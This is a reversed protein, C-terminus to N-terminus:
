HRDFFAGADQVGLEFYRKQATADKLSITMSELNKPRLVHLPKRYYTRDGVTISNEGLKELLDNLLQAQSFVRRNPLSLQLDSVLLHMDISNFPLTLISAGYLKDLEAHYDYDTFDCAIIEDVNPDQFLSALPTNDLYGGEIYYDGDIQIAKFYPLTTIGAIFADMFPDLSADDISKLIENVNFYRPERRTLNTALMDWRVTQLAKALVDRRHPDDLNLSRRCSDKNVTMLNAGTPLLSPRLGIFNGIVSFVDKLSLRMTRTLTPPLEEAPADWLLYDLTINNGSSTSTIHVISANRRKLEVLAGATYFSRYGGGSAVFGYRTM